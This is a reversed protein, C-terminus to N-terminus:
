KLRHDDKLSSMGEELSKEAETPKRLGPAESTKGGVGSGSAKQTEVEMVSKFIRLVREDAQQIYSILKSRLETTDM